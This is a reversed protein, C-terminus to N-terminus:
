YYCNRAIHGQRGCHYCVRTDRPKPAPDEESEEDSDEREEDSDDERDTDSDSEDTSEEAKRRKACEDLYDLGGLLDEFSSLTLPRCKPNLAIIRSDGQLVVYRDCLESESIKDDVKKLLNAISCFRRFSQRFNEDPRQRFSELESKLRRRVAPKYTKECKRMLAAWVRKVTLSDDDLLKDFKPDCEICILARAIRDDRDWKELAKYTPEEKEIESSISRAYESWTEFRLHPGFGKAQLVLKMERFWTM